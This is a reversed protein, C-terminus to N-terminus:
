RLIKPLVPERHSCSLVQTRESKERNWLDGKTSDPDHVSNQQSWLIGFQILCSWPKGLAWLFLEVDEWLLQIMNFSDTRPSSLFPFMKGNEEFLKCSSFQWLHLRRMLWRYLWHLFAYDTEFKTYLRYRQIGVVYGNIYLYLPCYLSCLGWNNGRFPLKPLTKETWSALVWILPLRCLTVPLM